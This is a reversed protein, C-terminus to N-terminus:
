QGPVPEAYRPATPSRTVSVDVEDVKEVRVSGGDDEVDEIFGKSFSLAGALTDPSGIADIVYPAGLVVGDVRIGNDDDEFSTQAVVRVQDNIEIAEVGANRLEEIGDLLNDLDLTRRPDEVTVRIGPGTAATTGALVGLTAIETRAQELAASRRESSSNLRDRTEELSSIDREARRSAAQLGNLAQVLEAERLGDYDDDQGAVRVQTVAAFGLLGVLVGAIAQGRSPRRLSGLLRDRGTEPRSPGPRSSEPEQPRDEPM